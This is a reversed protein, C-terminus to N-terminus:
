QDDTANNVMKFTACLSKTLTDLDSDTANTAGLLIARSAKDATTWRALGNVKAGTKKAVRYQMQYWKTDGVTVEAEQKVTLAGRVSTARLVPAVETTLIIM